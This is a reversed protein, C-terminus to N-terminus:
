PSIQLRYFRQPSSSVANTDSVTLTTGTATIPNGLNIWNNQLLNTKYQVQYVIGTTTNLVLQFSNVAKVTSKFTIPAVPTVTVDDFGFYDPDNRFGFQLPTITNTATVLFQLNNWTTTTINTVNYITSGNWQV